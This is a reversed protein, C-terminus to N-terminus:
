GALAPAASREPTPRLRNKGHFQSDRTEIYASAASRLDFRVEGIQVVFVSKYKPSTKAALEFFM